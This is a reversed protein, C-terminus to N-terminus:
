SDFLAACLLVKLFREQLRSPSSPGEVNYVVIGTAAAAATLLPRADFRCGTGGGGNNVPRVVIVAANASVRTRSFLRRLVFRSFTM